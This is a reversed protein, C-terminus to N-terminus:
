GAARKAIGDCSLACSVLAENYENYVLARPRTETVCQEGNYGEGAKLRQFSLVSHCANLKFCENEFISCM